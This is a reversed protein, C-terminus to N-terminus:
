RGSDTMAQMGCERRLAEYRPREKEKVDKGLDDMVHHCIVPYIISTEEESTLKMERLIKEALEAGKHVHDEYTGNEYAYLDYLMAAM